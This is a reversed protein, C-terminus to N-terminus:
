SHGDHGGLNEDRVGQGFGGDLDKTITTDLNIEHGLQALVLFLQGFDDAIVVTKGDARRGLHGGLQQFACVTQFDDGAGPDANVVDINRRRRFLAHDHHVRREAVGDGGGFMRYRHHKRDGALQGLGVGGGMGALPLLRTEHPDLQVVLGEAHDARAIDATDDAVARKAQVHLNHGIVREQALLARARHTDGLDLQILQQGAGIEDGKMHRQGVLGAVDEVRRRNGPGLRAHPDDVTGAAAQHILRGQGLGQFGAMNGTGGKVDECFFGGGCARQEIQWVDNDRRMKPSRGGLRLFVHRKLHGLLHRVVQQGARHLVRQVHRRYGGFLSGDHAGPQLQGFM